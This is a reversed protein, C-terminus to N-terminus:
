VFREAEAVLLPERGVGRAVAASEDEVASGEGVGTAVGLVFGIGALVTRHYLEELMFRGDVMEQLMDLHQHSLTDVFVNLSTEGGQLDGESAGTALM